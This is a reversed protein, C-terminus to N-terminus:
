NLLKTEGRMTKTKKDCLLAMAALQHNGIGPIIAASSWIAASLASSVAISIPDGWLDATEFYIIRNFHRLRFSHQLIQRMEANRAFEEMNINLASYLSASHVTSLIFPFFLLPKTRNSPLWWVNRETHYIRWISVSHIIYKGSNSNKVNEVIIQWLLNILRRSLSIWIRVREADSDSEMFYSIWKIIQKTAKLFENNRRNITIASSILPGTNYDNM